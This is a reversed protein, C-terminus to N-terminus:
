GSALGSKVRKLSTTTQAPLIHAITVDHPSFFHDYTDIFNGGQDVFFDMMEFATEKTCEGMFEKRIPSTLSASELVPVSTANGDM